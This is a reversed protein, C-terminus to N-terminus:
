LNKDAPKRNFDSLRKILTETFSKYYRLQCGPSAQEILIANIKMLTLNSQAIVSATREQHTLFGIEGFCDGNNLWGIVEGAKSVNATGSVIIYFTNDMDGESIITEGEKFNEWTAAYMVEEIEDSNFDRFFTLEKLMDRRGINEIERDVIHLKDILRSLAAAMEQGTQYRKFIDKDIARHVVEAIFEPLEPRLERISVPDGNVIQYILSYDNDALFPPRGTLLEYMVVGLSYLDSQPGILENKVQEPSMYNPSGVLGAPQTDDLQALQAIGFDMIKVDGDRTLMINSPKIDRHIVGERHAYGLAKCCKFIIDFIRGLELRMDMKTYKQLSEGKVLEMVIYNRLGDMGADFVSVIHPHNLNGAAHAEIFFSRQFIRRRAPDDNIEPSSLKIAVPRQVFPDYGEYVVAMGGHGIEEKIIYKGIQDPGTQQGLELM